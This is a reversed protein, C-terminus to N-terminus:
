QFTWLEFTYIIHKRHSSLYLLRAFDIDELPQCSLDPVSRKQLCNIRKPFQFCPPSFCWSSMGKLLFKPAQLQQLGRLNGPPCIGLNSRNPKAWVHLIDGELRPWGTTGLSPFSGHWHHLVAAMSPLIWGLGHARRSTFGPRRAKHHSQGSDLMPHLDM